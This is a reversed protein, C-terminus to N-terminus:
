WVEKGEPKGWDIEGYPNVDPMQAVIEALSPRSPAAPRSKRTEFKSLRALRKIEDFEAQTMLGIRRLAKADKLMHRMRITMRLM